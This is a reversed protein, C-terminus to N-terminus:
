RSGNHLLMTLIKVRAHVWGRGFSRLGETHRCRGGRLRLPTIKSHACQKELPRLTLETPM